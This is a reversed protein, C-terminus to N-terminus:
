CSGPRVSLPTLNYGVMITVVFITGGILIGCITSIIVAHYLFDKTYGQVYNGDSGIAAPLSRGKKLLSKARAFYKDAGSM